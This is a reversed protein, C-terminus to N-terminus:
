AARAGTGPPTDAGEIQPAAANERLAAGAELEREAVDLTREARAVAARVAEAAAPEPGTPPLGLLARELVRFRRRMPRTVLFTLVVALPVLVALMVATPKVIELAIAGLRARAAAGDHALLLLGETQRFGNVIPVALWYLGAAEVSGGAGGRLVADPMTQGIAARDTDFLIVGSIDVVALRSITRDAALRADILTQAGPVGMLRVGLNIGREFTDSLDHATVMLVRAQQTQLLRQFKLYNLAAVVACAIVLIASLTIALRSAFSTGAM